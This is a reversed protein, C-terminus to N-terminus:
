KEDRKLVESHFLAPPSSNAIIQDRIRAAFKLPIQKAAQESRAKIQLQPRAARRCGPCVRSQAFSANSGM